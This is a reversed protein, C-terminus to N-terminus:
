RSYVNTCLAHTETIALSKSSSIIKGCVGYVREVYWRTLNGILEFDKGLSLTPNLSGNSLLLAENNIEGPIVTSQGIKKRNSQRKFPTGAYKGSIFALWATHWGKEVLHMTSNRFQIRFIGSEIEQRGKTISLVLEEGDSEQTVLALRKTLKKM